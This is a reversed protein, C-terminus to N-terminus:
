APGPVFDGPRLDLSARGEPGRLTWLVESSMELKDTLSYAMCALNFARRRITRDRILTVMQGVVFVKPSGNSHRHFTRAGAFDRTLDLLYDVKWGTSPAILKSAARFWKNQHLLIWPPLKQSKPIHQVSPYGPSTKYLMGTIKVTSRQMYNNVFEKCLTEHILAVTRGREGCEGCDNSITGTWPTNQLKRSPYPKEFKSCVEHLHISHTSAYHGLSRSWINETLYNVSTDRRNGSLNICRYLKPTPKRGSDLSCSAGHWSEESISHHSPWLPTRCESLLWQTSKFPDRSEQKKKRM